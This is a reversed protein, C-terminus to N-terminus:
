HTVSGQGALERIHGLTRKSSNGDFAYHEELFALAAQTSQACTAPDTLDKLCQTVEEIRHAIRLAGANAYPIFHGDIPLREGASLAVLIVPVHSLFAELVVTSYCTIMADAQVLCEAVSEYQAISHSVGKFAEAIAERHFAKREPIPRIKVVAVAGPIAGVAEAAARYYAIVEYTDFLTTVMEPALVLVSLSSGGVIKPYVAARYADFRPSGVVLTKDPAYGIAHLEKAVLPGYTAIYEATHARSISGPGLYELGHQLEMAPIGLSRAVLALIPFHTQSSVSARLLVLHPRHHKLMKISGEIERAIRPVGLMFVTNLAEKMFLQMAVGELMLEPVEGAGETWREAIARAGAEARRTAPTDLHEAIHMFRARHRFVSVIDMRRIEARDLLVLESESSAHLLPAVNMWNESALIRMKKRPLLGMCTNVVRIGVSFLARAILFRVRRARVVRARGKGEELLHVTVTSKQAMAYAARLVAGSPDRTLVIHDPRTHVQEACIFLTDVDPSATLARTLLPAFYAVQLLYFQLAYAYAKLFPIGQYTYSSFSISALTRAVWAEIYTFREASERESFRERSIFPIQQETLIWELEADLALILPKENSTEHWARIVRAAHSPHFAVILTNQNM